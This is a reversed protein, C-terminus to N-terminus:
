SCSQSCITASMMGIDNNTNCIIIYNNTYHADFM